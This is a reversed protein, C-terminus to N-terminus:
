DNVVMTRDVAPHPRGHCNLCSIRSAQLLPRVMQHSEIREFSLVGAHCGLCNQTNFPKHFAIVRPYTRTTYKLLHRMGDMKAKLNGQLGYDKHCGYCQDEAIWRNKFHRAALTQSSPEQMDEVIPRMVHCSACASVRHTDEFVFYNAMTVSFLPIVFLLTFLLLKSMTTTLSKRYRLEFVLLGILGVTASFVGLVRVITALQPGAHSIEQLVTPNM